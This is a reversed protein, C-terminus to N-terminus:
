NMLRSCSTQLPNSHYKRAPKGCRTRGLAQARSPISGRGPMALRPDRGARGPRRGSTVSPSTSTRLGFQPPSRRWRSVNPPSSRSRSSRLSSATVARSISPQRVERSRRSRFTPSYKMEGQVRHHRGQAQAAEVGLLIPITRRRRHLRGVDVGKAAPSKWSRAALPDETQRQYRIPASVQGRM